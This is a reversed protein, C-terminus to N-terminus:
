RNEHKSQPNQGEDRSSPKVASNVATAVAIFRASADGPAHEAEELTEGPRLVLVSEKKGFSLRFIHRNIKADRGIRAPLKTFSNSALVIAIRELEERRLKGRRHPKRIEENLFRAVTFAGEPEITVIEGSVGAFGEQADRLVLEEKLKGEQTIFRNPKEAAFCFLPSIGALALWSIRLNHLRMAMGKEFFRLSELTYIRVDDTCKLRQAFM